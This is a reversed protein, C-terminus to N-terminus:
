IESDSNKKINLVMLLFKKGKVKNISRASVQTFGLIVKMFGWIPEVVLKRHSYNKM